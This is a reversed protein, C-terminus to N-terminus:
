AHISGLINCLSHPLSSHLSLFNYLPVLASFSFFSSHSKCFYSFFSFLPTDEQHSSTFLFYGTPRLRYFLKVVTSGTWKKKQEYLFFVFVSLWEIMPQRDLKSRPPSWAMSPRERRLSRRWRLWWSSVTLWSSSRTWRLPVWVILTPSTSCAVWPPQTWVVQLSFFYYTFFRLKDPCECLSPILFRTSKRSIKLM